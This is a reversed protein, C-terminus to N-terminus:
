WDGSAGGGGFSGGGGGTFGGGGWGGDSGGGWGGGGGSGWGGGHSANRGIENAVSWLIVQSLGSGGDGRYRRGGGSGRRALGLVLFLFVMGFFVLGLPIGGGSAGQRSRQHTKNFEAVAADTRAKAEDPSARLQQILADTGATLAGPVDNNQKLRPLMQQRIVVSTLADTLIPELGYGVEIRPGRQGAPNNPAVFLIAGNNVDKLGVGWARGLKYGYEDLPYGQTDRITAVVLQRNTDKQLAELKATLDARTAEPLVGADDVVLGTFKPFTQAAAPGALLFLAALASLFAALWERVTGPLFRHPVTSAPVPGAHRTSRVATKRDEASQSRVGAKAPSPLTM